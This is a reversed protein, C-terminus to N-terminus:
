AAEGSLVRCRRRQRRIVFRAINPLVARLDAIGEAREIATLETAVASDEEVDLFACYSIIAMRKMEEKVAQLDLRRIEDM